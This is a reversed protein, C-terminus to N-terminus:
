FPSSVRNCPYPEGQMWMTHENLRPKHQFNQGYMSRPCVPGKDAVINLIHMSTPCVLGKGFLLMLLHHPRTAGLTRPRTPPPRCAVLLNLELEDPEAVLGARGARPPGERRARGM